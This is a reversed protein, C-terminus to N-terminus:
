PTCPGWAQREGKVLLLKYQTGTPGQGTVMRAIYASAGVPAALIATDRGDFPSLEPRVEELKVRVGDIEALTQVDYFVDAPYIPDNANGTSRIVALVKAQILMGSTDLSISVGRTNQSIRLPPVASIRAFLKRALKAGDAKLTKFGIAM